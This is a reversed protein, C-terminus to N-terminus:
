HICVITKRVHSLGSMTRSVSLGSVMMEEAASLEARMHVNDYVSALADDLAEDYEHKIRM